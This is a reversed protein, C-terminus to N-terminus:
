RCAEVSERWVVPEWYAGSRIESRRDLQFRAALQYTTDAEVDIELTKHRERSRRDRVVQQAGSFRDADIAEALTLVHRGPALRHVSTDSDAIARGDIAVLVVPFLQRGRPASDFTSIRGCAGRPALVSLRYGPVETASAVGALSLERGGRVLDIEFRGQSAGVAARFAAVPDPAGALVVANLRLLRDGVRLGLREANGGPTLAVVPLGDQVSALDVVAGLEYRIQPAQEIEVPSDAASDLAGLEHLRVLTAEIEAAVRPDPAAAALMPSLSLALVMWTRVM